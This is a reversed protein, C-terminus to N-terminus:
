KGNQNELCCKEEQSNEEHQKMIEYKVVLDRPGSYLSCEKEVNMGLCYDSHVTNYNITVFVTSGHFM